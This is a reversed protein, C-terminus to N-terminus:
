RHVNSVALMQHYILEWQSVCQKRRSSGIIGSSSKQSRNITQELCMDTGVSNFLGSTRKVVFKGALFSAYVDPAPKPLKVMDELYLSCWRLYDFVAFLPLIAQVTFVHLMWNGERDARILDKMLSVLEILMDWYAFTESTEKRQTIFQDFDHFVHVDDTDVCNHMIMRSEQRKKNAVARKIDTLLKLEAKYKLVENEKFFECWRLRNMTDSLMMMGKFSRIYNSGALVSEVINIGFASNDIWINAAGGGPVM